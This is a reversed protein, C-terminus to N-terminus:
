CPLTKGYSRMQMITLVFLVITLILNWAALSMGLIYYQTQNCPAIPQRQMSQKFEEFSGKFNFNNVCSTTFGPWNHEVGLHFVALLMSVGLTILTVVFMQETLKPLILSLAAIFILAIYPLRQYLCLECPMVHFIFQMVYVAGLAAAASGLVFYWFYIASHQM